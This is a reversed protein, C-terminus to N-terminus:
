GTPLNGEPPIRWRKTATWFAWFMAYAFWLVFVVGSWSPGRGAPDNSALVISVVLDIMLVMTAAGFGGLDGIARRRAEPLNEPRTWYEKNPINLGPLSDYRAFMVLIGAFMGATFLGMGAMFWIAGARSSWGDAEAGAGLGSWHTPIPGEPLSVAAWVTAAAYLVCTLAFLWVQLRAM